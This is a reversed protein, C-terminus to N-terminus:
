HSSNNNNNNNFGNDLGMVSAISQKYVREESMEASCESNHELPRMVSGYGLHIAGACL